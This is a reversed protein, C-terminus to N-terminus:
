LITSINGSTGLVCMCICEFVTGWRWTKYDDFIEIKGEGEEEDKKKKRREEIM